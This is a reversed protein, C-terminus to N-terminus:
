QLSLIGGWNLSIRSIDIKEIGLHKQWIESIQKELQSKPHNFTSVNFNKKLQSGLTKRDIKGNLTLPFEKVFHYKQPVMYAPLHGKLAKKWSDIQNSNIAESSSLIVCAELLNDTVLVVSSKVDMLSDLEKEIEGLEIRHGRIKVQQDIRGM